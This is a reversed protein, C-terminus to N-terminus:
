ACNQLQYSPQSQPVNGVIRVFGMLHPMMGQSKAGQMEPVRHANQHPEAEADHTQAVTINSCAHMHDFLSVSIDSVSGLSRPPHKPNTSCSQVCMICTHKHEKYMYLLLISWTM